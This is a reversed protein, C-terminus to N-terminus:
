LKRNHLFRLPSVADYVWAMVGPAKHEFDNPNRLGNSGLSWRATKLPSRLQADLTLSRPLLVPSVLVCEQLRIAGVHLAHLTETRVRYNLYPVVKGDMMVLKVLRMDSLPYTLDYAHLLLSKKRRDIEFTSAKDRVAKLDGDLASGVQLRERESERQEPALTNILASVYSKCESLRRASVVKERLSDRKCGISATFLNPRSKVDLDQFGTLTFRPSYPAADSHLPPPPPPRSIGSFVPWGTAEDPCSEWMRFDPRSRVPFRTRNATLNQMTQCKAHRCNFIAKSQLCARREPEEEHSSNYISEVTFYARKFDFITARIRPSIRDSMCTYLRRINEQPLDQWLKLLQGELDVKTAEPLFPRLITQIYRRESLTGEAFVLPTRSDYPFTVGCWSVEKQPPPQKAIFRTDCRQIRYQQICAYEQSGHSTGRHDHLAYQVALKVIFHHERSTSQQPRGPEPLRTYAGEQACQTWCRSVTIAYHNLLRAIRWFTWGVKGTRLGVISSREFKDLQASAQQILRWLMGRTSQLVYALYAAMDAAIDNMFVGRRGDKTYLYDRQADFVALIGHIPAVTVRLGLAEYSRRALRATNGDHRHTYLPAPISPRPFHSIGSFVRRGAADDPLIGVYLHLGIRRPPLRAPKPRSCTVLVVPRARGTWNEHYLSNVTFQASKFARSSLIYKYVRQGNKRKITFLRLMSLCQAACVLVPGAPRKPVFMPCKEQAAHEREAMADGNVGAIFLCMDMAKRKMEFHTNADVSHRGDTWGNFTLTQSIDSPNASLFTLKGAVPQSNRSRRAPRVVSPHSPLNRTWNLRVVFSFIFGSAFTVRRCLALSRGASLYSVVDAWYRFGCPSTWGAATDTYLLDSPVAPRCRCSIRGRPAVLVTKMPKCGLTRLASYLKERAIGKPCEFVYHEIDGIRLRLSIVAEQRSVACGGPDRFMGRSAFLFVIRGEYGFVLGLTPELGRYDITLNACILSFLFGNARPGGVRGGIQPIAWTVPDRPWHYSTLSVLVGNSDTIILVRQINREQVYRLAKYVAYAEAHYITTSLPIRFLLTSAYQPVYVAADVSARVRYNRPTPLMFRLGLGQFWDLCRGRIHQSIPKMIRERSHTLIFTGGVVRGGKGRGTGKRAGEQKARSRVTGPEYGFYAGQNIECIFRTQPVQPYSMKRYGEGGGRKEWDGATIWSVDRRWADNNRSLSICTQLVVRRAMQRPTVASICNFRGYGYGTGNRTEAEVGYVLVDMTCVPKENTQLAIGACRVSILGVTGYSTSFINATQYPKGESRRPHTQRAGRRMDAPRAQQDAPIPAAPGSGGIFDIVAKGEGWLANGPRGSISPTLIM